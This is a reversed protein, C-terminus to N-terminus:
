PEIAIQQAAGTPFLAMLRTKGSGNDEAYIYVGNTSPASPATQEVMSIAAGGTSGNRVGLIGAAVRMINTDLSGGYIQSSNSNFGIKGGSVIDVSNNWIGCFINGGPNGVNCIPTTLNGDYRVNFKSSGGVRLDMLAGGGVATQTIDMRIGYFSVAGNNWTQTLDLLPKDATVTAGTITLSRNTNDWATGSMGAFSGAANYQIETTSGGPSGGGATAWTNDGRLFTTSDKTGTATLGTTAVLGTANTLTLSSPTGGAGNLAVFAGASGVNVALATAVGTGLGSVGTSIPLGTANTLTGSSPTGLAGNLAVFAGASGVNVALATAVGTGLGSVGTSIPLGTCSTLTGSSPTGLAPTVLTPSASTFTKVQAATIKVSVGGQSGYVLDAAGLAGAATLATLKADAM